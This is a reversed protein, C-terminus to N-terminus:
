HGCDRFSVAFAEFFQLSNWFSVEDELRQNEPAFINSEPLQVYFLELQSFISSECRKM